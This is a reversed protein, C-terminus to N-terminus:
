KIATEQPCRRHSSSAASLNTRQPTVRPPPHEAKDGAGEQLPVHVHRVQNLMKESSQGVNEAGGGEQGKNLNLFLM